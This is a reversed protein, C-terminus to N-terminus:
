NEGSPSLNKRGQDYMHGLLKAATEFVTHKGYLKSLVIRVNKDLSTGSLRDSVRILYIGAWEDISWYPPKAASFIHCIQWPLVLFSVNKNEPKAYFFQM